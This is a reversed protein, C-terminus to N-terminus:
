WVFAPVGFAHRMLDRVFLGEFDHGDEESVWRKKEEHYCYVRVGTVPSELVLRQGDGRRVVFEGSTLSVKLSGRETVVAMGPNEAKMAEVGRRLNGLTSALAAEFAEASVEATTDKAGSSRRLETGGGKYGGKQEPNKFFAGRRSSLARANVNFCSKGLGVSHSQYLVCRLTRSIIFSKM